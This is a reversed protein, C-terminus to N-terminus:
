KIDPVPRGTTDVSLSDLFSRVAALATTSEVTDNHGAGSVVVFQKQRAISAAFVERGQQIPVLQDAEGHIMLLPASSGSVMDREDFATMADPSPKMRAQDSSSYGLARAFIPFEEAATAITGALILGAVHRQSAVYAAMATGLSFGYVVVPGSAALKDYLALSDSRFDMVAPKGSSFGYGRYDFVTVDAGRVALGRYISLSGDITMANGNFFLIRLTSRRDPTATFTWGRLTAGAVDLSEMRRTPTATWQSLPAAPAPSPLVTDVPMVELRAPSCAALLATGFLMTARVLQGKRNPM